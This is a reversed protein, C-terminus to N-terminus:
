KAPNLYDIIEDVLDDINKDSNNWFVKDAMYDMACFDIEDAQLRRERERKDDKRRRSRQEITETNAKIYLIKYSINKGKAEQYLKDVGSPNLIIVRKEKNNKQLIQNKPSGYYWTRGGSVEYKTWELFFNNEIKNKFEEESIFYYDRGDVEFKRKPRTTYTVIKKFGEKGLAKVVTDKGSCTKGTIVVLM